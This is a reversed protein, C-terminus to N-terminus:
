KKRQRGVARKGLPAGVDSAIEVRPWFSMNALQEIRRGYAKKFKEVSFYDDVFQEM